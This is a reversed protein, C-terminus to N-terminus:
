ACRLATALALDGRCGAQEQAGVMRVLAAGGEGRGQHDGALM